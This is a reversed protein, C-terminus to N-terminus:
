SDRLLRGTDLDFFRLRVSPRWAFRGDRVSAVFADMAQEPSPFPGTLTKHGTPSAPSQALVKCFTDGRYVLLDITDALDVTTLPRNKIADEAETRVFLAEEGPLPFRGTVPYGHEIASLNAHNERETLTPWLARQHRALYPQALAAPDDADGRVDGHSAVLVRQAESTTQVLGLPFLAPRDGGTIADLDKTIDHM